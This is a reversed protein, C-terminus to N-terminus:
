RCLVQYLVWSDWDMWGCDGHRVINSVCISRSGRGTGAGPSRLIGGGTAVGGVRILIVRLPPGVAIYALAVLIPWLIFFHDRKSKRLTRTYRQLVRIRYLSSIAHRALAPGIIKRDFDRELRQRVFDYFHIM